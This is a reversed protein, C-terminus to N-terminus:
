PLRSRSQGPRPRAWTARVWDAVDASIAKVVAETQARLLYGGRATGELFFRVPAGADSSIRHCDVTTLACDAFGAAELAAFAIEPQAYDNAGPGPPLVVAPDGHRRIADFVSALVTVREAGHWVSYALRGGPRLVRACEAFVRGPDPVHPIGFGITVADFEAAGFPLAMADARLFRAAPAREAALELMTASFDVATVEAGAACLAAAVIGHGCCLDLVAQGSATGRALVPVCHESATGFDWAHAAAVAATSWERLELDAFTETM